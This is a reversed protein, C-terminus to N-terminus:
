DRVYEVVRYLAGDEGCIPDAAEHARGPGVQHVVCLGRGLFAGLHARVFANLAGAGQSGGLVLLLSREPALGLEARARRRGPADPAPQFAPSVPPGVLRHRGDRRRPATAPWAHFVRRALHSLVRTARGPSANIELLAVPIGLSKAAIVAPATTFGGLGLLVQSRHERLAARARLVSPPLRLTLGSLSPAGGGAPELPLSQLHVPAGAVRQGLDRLVRQEVPRGSTFWLLDGLPAPERAQEPAREPHARELELHALLHMGPVLHGGTGGGAFALRLPHRARALLAGGLAESRQTGTVGSM